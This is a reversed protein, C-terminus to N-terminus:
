NQTARVYANNVAAVTAALPLTYVVLGAPASNKGAKPVGVPSM